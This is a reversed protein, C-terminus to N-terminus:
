PTPTLPAGGEPQETPTLRLRDRMSRVANLYDDYSAPELAIPVVIGADSPVYLTLTEGALNASMAKPFGRGAEVTFVLQGGSRAATLPAETSSVSGPSDSAPVSHYITGSLREESEQLLRVFLM